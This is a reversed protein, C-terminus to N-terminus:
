INKMDESEVFSHSLYKNAPDFPHDIQFGGGFKTVKGHVYINNYFDGAVSQAGIYAKNGFLPNEGRV